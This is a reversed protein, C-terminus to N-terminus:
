RNIRPLITPVKSVSRQYLDLFADAENKIYKELGEWNKEEILIHAPIPNNKPAFNHLSSGRNDGQNAMLVVQWLDYYHLTQFLFATKLDIGLVEKARTQLIIFDYGINYGAPVFRWPNPDYTTWGTKELFQELIEKESSEWAKLITLRGKRKGSDDYFPMFQISVIKDKTPDPRERGETNSEIDLYYTPM